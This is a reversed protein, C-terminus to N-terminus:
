KDLIRHKITAFAVEIGHLLPNKTSNQCFDEHYICSVPVEKIRYGRARAKILFETSFGFGNEITRINQAVERTFARFGSQSDTIKEDQGFNYLWNIINIGFKRYRKMTYAKLFRSGIVIDAGGDLIPKVLAPIEDPNHQGDGDLTVMIDGWFHKLPNLSYAIGYRTAIGWGRIFCSFINYCPTEKEAEKRTNDSSNNDVVIVRNCYKQAKAVIGAITREENYCPIIAVVKAM